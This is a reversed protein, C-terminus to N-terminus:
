DDLRERALLKMNDILPKGDLVVMSMENRQFFLKGSEFAIEFGVVVKKGTAKPPEVITIPGLSSWYKDFRERGVDQLDATLMAWGADIDEPMVEYFEAVTAEFDEATVEATTTATTTTTTEQTASSDASTTTAPGPGGSATGATPGWDVTFAVVLAAAVVAAAVGLAAYVPRRSKRPQQPPQPPQPPAGADPRVVVTPSDVMVTAVDDDEPTSAVAALWEYAQRMDPRNAPHQQLMTNLADTLPGAREPAVVQGNAVAHLTAITNDQEGFPLRGEVARYLTGGLSFVDSAPGPVAGRAAEPSLYAPSGTLMGTSTVTIDGTARSIGFDTLKISGDEGILINAPKVDRHVIGVDHAAALASAMEAGIRAVERPPLPGRSTLEAALSVSPLYEMILVPRGGDDIVDYIAVANNHRIRAAIRGERLARQRAQEAAADDLGAPLLLEKAAVTRHLLEDEALWVAGMAGSGLKRTLRYRGAIVRGSPESV